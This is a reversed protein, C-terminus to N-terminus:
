DNREYDQVEDWNRDLRSLIEIYSRQNNAKRGYV